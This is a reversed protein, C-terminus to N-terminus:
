TWCTPFGVDHGGAAPMSHGPRCLSRPIVPRCSRTARSPSASRGAWFTPPMRRPPRPATPGGQEAYSWGLGGVLLGGGGLVFDEILPVHLDAFEPPPEWDSLYWLVAACALDDELTDPHAMKLVWGRREIFARVRQMRAVKAFTGDWALITTKQACGPKPELPTLWALANQAFLLNDSGETIEVDLTLADQAYVVVSGGGYKRSAAFVRSAPTGDAAPMAKPLRGLSRWADAAGPPAAECLGTLCLSGPQGENMNLSLGEFLSLLAREQEEEATAREVLAWISLALLCVVTACAVAWAVVKRRRNRAVSKRVFVTERANFAHQPSQLARAAVALNPNRSWLLQADRTRAFLDADPALRQGLILTDRGAAHIWEHLTKWARVLADHAPEVYDEGKVILRADVLREIVIQARPNEDPSYDLDAIAVRRGALDGEVSVMRLLIKRMTAQQAPDLSQYLNDATTRLAGMMGGLREYDSQRLARDARGSARYAEFLESLAYALLPLAGPSQVVDGVIQEVLEPPDFILVEQMTPMVIIDKLEELSFPPVTCRGSDWAAKLEGGSM